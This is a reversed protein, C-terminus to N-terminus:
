IIVRAHYCWGDMEVDGWWGDNKLTQRDGLKVVSVCDGIEFWLMVYGMFMILILVMTLKSKM